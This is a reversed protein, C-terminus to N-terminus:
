CRRGSRRPQRQVYLVAEGVPSRLATYGQGTAWAALPADLDTGRNWARTGGEHGVVIAAPPSAAFAEGLTKPSIICLRAQRAPDIRDASRWVFPGAAFRPDLPAGSDLVLRPTLTAVPGTVGAARLVGGIWGAERASELAPWRGSAAATGIEALGAAGLLATGALALQGWRPLQQASLLLAFRVALPALLPVFYQRYTPTPLLAAALGGVIMWDLMREGPTAAAGRRALAILVLMVLAPGRVLIWVSDLLKAVWTLRWPNSQAYWIQPDAVPYEFVGFWFGEPAALALPLAPLAGLLGGLVLAPLWRRREVDFLLFLALAAAPVGYSIKACTAAGAFVGAALWLRPRVLAGAALWIAAALLALPLMDNRAHGAAFLFVNSLVVLLVALGASRPAAGLRRSAGYLLALAILGLVASALRFAPFRLGPPLLALPALVLPQLPTQLYAFDRYPLGALTLQAAAVYQNEDHDLDGALALLVLLAAVAVWALAAWVGAVPRHTTSSPYGDV